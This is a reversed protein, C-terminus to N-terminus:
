GGIQDSPASINVLLVCYILEATVRGSPHREKDTLTIDDWFVFATGRQEIHINYHSFKNWVIHRLVKYLYFMLTMHMFFNGLCYGTTWRHFAM